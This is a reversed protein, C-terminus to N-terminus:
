SKLINSHAPSPLRSPQFLAQVCAQRDENLGQYGTRFGPKTSHVHFQFAPFAFFPLGHPRGPCGAGDLRPLRTETHSWTEFFLIFLKQLFVDLNIEPKWVSTHKSVCLHVYLCKFTHNPMNRQSLLSSLRELGAPDCLESLGGNWVGRVGQLHAQQKGKETQHGRSQWFPQDGRALLSYGRLSLTSTRTTAKDNCWM